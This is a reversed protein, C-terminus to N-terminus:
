RGRKSCKEERHAHREREGKSCKGTRRVTRWRAVSRGRQATSGKERKSCKELRKSACREARKRRQMWVLKDEGEKL